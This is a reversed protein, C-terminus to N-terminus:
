KEELDKLSVGYSCFTDLNIKIQAKFQSPNHENPENSFETFKYFYAKWALRRDEISKSPLFKCQGDEEGYGIFGGFSSDSSYSCDLALTIPADLKKFDFIKKQTDRPINFSFNESFFVIDRLSDFSSPGLPVKKGKYTIQIKDLYYDDRDPRGGVEDYLINRLYRKATDRYRKKVRQAEDLALSKGAIAPDEVIIVENGDRIIRQGGPEMIEVTFFEEVKRVQRSDRCYKSFLSKSKNKIGRYEGLFKQQVAAAEEPTFRSKYNNERLWLTFADNEKESLTELEASSAERSLLLALGLILFRNNCNFM